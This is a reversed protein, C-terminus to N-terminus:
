CPKSSLCCKEIILPNYARKLKAVRMQGQHLHGLTLASCMLLNRFWSKRHKTECQLGRPGLILLNYASKLKVIRPQGELDWPGFTLDSWMLLYRAWSKRYTAKVNCVLLLRTILVKLNPKGRKVKFSPGLTLDSWMLLNGSCSKTETLKVHWVELVWLVPSILM